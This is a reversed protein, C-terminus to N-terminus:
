KLLLDRLLFINPLNYKKSGELNENLLFYSDGIVTIVGKGHKKSVITPFDLLKCIVEVEKNSKDFVVPWAEHFLVETKKYNSKGWGLPISDIMLDFSELLPLSAGTEEWGVSLLLNGGGKVFEKVAAVERETFPQTPAIMVLLKAQLLKETDFDKLLLPFYGNRLLNNRLGGISDDEWSMLDFRGKHSFDVFAVNLRNFPVEKTQMHREAYGSFSVISCLLTILTVPIITNPTGAFFMIALGIISLGLVVKLVNQPIYRVERYSRSLVDFTNVVFPYTTMFTTNHFASTDGCVMVKGKGYQAYAALVVDNLQEYYDFRRNGLYAKKVNDKYGRDSYCYKGIVLPVAPPECALSAGVWWSQSLETKFGNTIAHPRIDMLFDWTYRSPMASDFKFKIPVVRLIQNFNYMLGGLNTHDGLLLLGGGNRVYNFLTFLEKRDLKKNLNIMVLVDADFLASPAVADIMRTKFGVKNLYAPLLGFMGGSRQGYSGFRPTKWDLSGQTYFVITKKEVPEPPSFPYVYLILSAAFVIFCPVAYKYLRREPLVSIEKGEGKKQFLISPACMLFLVIQTYLHSRDVAFTYNRIISSSFLNIGVFFINVIFLYLLALSLQFASGKKRLMFFVFHYIVFSLVIFFGFATPGLNLTRSYVFGCVSSFFRAYLEVFYWGEPFYRYWFIVVTFFVTTLLSLMHEEKSYNRWICYLTVIFLLLSLGSLQVTVTDLRTIILACVIFFPLPFLNERKVPICVFLYTLLATFSLLNGLGYSLPGFNQCIFGFSLLIILPKVRQHM